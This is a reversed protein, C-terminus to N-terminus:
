QRSKARVSRQLTLMMYNRPNRANFDSYSVGNVRFRQGYYNHDLPQSVEIEDRERIDLTGPILTATFTRITELGQQLLLQEEPNAQIRAAVNQYQLTGTIVAGGVIDDNAYNIRWIDIRCNLGAISM